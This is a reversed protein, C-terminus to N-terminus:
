PAVPPLGGGGSAVDSDIEEDSRAGDLWNGRRLVSRIDQKAIDGRDALQILAMVEQPSLSTDFFEKNLEFEVQDPNGGMFVAMWRLAKEIADSANNALKALASSEASADIRAAEATQTGTRATILRAGLQVMMDIKTAMEAALAGGAQFQLMDAGGGEGLYVGSRSGVQVGDPNAERFDAGSMTSWLVFTPQGAMFLSEEHDASNRYHGLNVDAIDILPPKQYGFRNNRAGVWAFPIERLKNGAADTPFREPEVIEGTDDYLTVSYGEATLRLVRYRDEVTVSFEDGPIELKEALVVLVLRYEAGVRVARWNIISELPYRAVTARLGLAREDAASRTAEAAPYDVLLGFTGAEMLEGVVDGALQELSTGAGDCDDEAYAIASPLKMTPPERMVAGLLGEHTRGTVNVFLARQLYAAYRALAAKKKSEISSEAEAPNPVPLYCSGAAKVADQGEVCDRVRKARRAAETYGKATDKVAM